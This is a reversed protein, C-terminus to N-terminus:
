IKIVKVGESTDKIQYGKEEIKDRIKDSKEM